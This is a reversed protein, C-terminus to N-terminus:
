EEDENAAIADLRALLARFGCQDPDFFGWEDQAPKDQQKSRRASPASSVITQAAVQVSVAVAVNVSTQGHGGTNMPVTIVQPVQVPQAVQAPVSPEVVNRRRRRALPGAVAPLVEARSPADAYSSPPQPQAETAPRPRPAVSAAPVHEVPAVPAIGRKQRPEGWERMDRMAPPAVPVVRPEPVVSAAAPIPAVPVVPEVSATPAVPEYTHVPPAAYMDVPWADDTDAPRTDPRNAPSAEYPDIPQTEYTEVPGIDYRDVPATEYTDVPRPTYTERPPAVYTDIPRYAYTEVPTFPVLPQDDFAAISEAEGADTVDGTALQVPQMLEYADTSRAPESWERAVTNGAVANGAVANGAVADEGVAEEAVAAEVVADEAVGHEAVGHEAVGDEAVSGRAGGGEAVYVPEGSDGADALGTLFPALDVDHAEPTMERAIAHEGPMERRMSAAAAGPQAVAIRRQQARHLYQGVQEAFLAPDCGDPMVPATREKRFRARIGGRAVGPTSLIPITLTQVHAGAEGLARLYDSLVTEDHHPLLPATLVIDPVRHDLAAVARDGSEAMVLEAHLHNRAMSALQAAHRSDPEVVLILSM